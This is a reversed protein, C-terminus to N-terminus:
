LGRRIEFDDALRPKPPPPPQRRKPVDWLRFVLDLGKGIPNMRDTHGGNDEGDPGVSYILLGDNERKLRLPKGDFPDIPVEKLHGSTVLADWNGPWAKKQRRYREAALAAAACRLQAQFRQEAAFTKSVAPALLRVLPPQEQATAEWQALQAPQQEPRLKAIEVGRNLYRLMAARQSAVFGPARLDLSDFEGRDEGSSRNLGAVGKLERNTLTKKGTQVAELFHDMGAREGRMANNILTEAVEKEVLNQLKALAQESPQGQALAREIKGVAIGRVAVRVLLSILLPEDGISRGANLIARCSALAGDADGEQARLVVDWALLNAVERTGQLHPLVTGVWDDSYTIPYRGENLDALKRAKERAAGAAHLQVRLAATQEQNLQNQPQLELFSQQLAERDLTATVGEGETPFDWAPWRKPMLQKAAIAVDGSNREAPVVARGAEVEELRWHPDFRKTEAIAEEL